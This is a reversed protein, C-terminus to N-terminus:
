DANSLTDANRPHESGYWFFLIRRQQENVIGVNEMCLLYGQVKAKCLDAGDFDSINRKRSIDRSMSELERRHVEPLQSITERLTM